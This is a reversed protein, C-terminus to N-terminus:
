FIERTVRSHLRQMIEIDNRKNIAGSKLRFHHNQKIQNVSLSDVGDVSDINLTNLEQCYIGISECLRGLGYDGLWRPSWKLRNSLIAVAADRSILRNAGSAFRGSVNPISGAYVVAEQFSSVVNLLQNLRLYSSSTTMYIFDYDTHTVFYNLLALEKWRHTLYIDPFKVQLQRDHNTLLKADKVRPVFAMFPLSITWDFFNLALHPWRGSFRVGEHIQDFKKGAKGVPIGYAHFISVRPDREISLWTQEQGIETIDTWPKYVGHVLVCM